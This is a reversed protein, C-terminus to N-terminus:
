RTAYTVTFNASSISTLLHLNAIPTVKVQRHLTSPTNSTSTIMFPLEAVLLLVRIHVALVGQISELGAWAVSLFSFGM